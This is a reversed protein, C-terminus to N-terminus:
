PLTVGVFAGAWKLTDYAARLKPAYSIAAGIGSLTARLRALNPKAKAVEAEGDRVMESIETPDFDQLPDAVDSKLAESIEHLAKRIADVAGQDIHQNAIGISGIGTQVVGVPGHFVMTQGNDATGSTPQRASTAAILDLEADLRSLERGMVSDIEPLITSLMATMMSSGRGGGGDHFPASSSIARKLPEVQRQMAAGIHEAAENRAVGMLAVGHASASRVYLNFALQARVPISTTAAEILMRGATSSQLMGKGALVSVTKGMERTLNADLKALEIEYLRTFVDLVAAGPDSM